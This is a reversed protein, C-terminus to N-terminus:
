KRASLVQGVKTGQYAVSIDIKPFKHTRKHEITIPEIHTERSFLWIGICYLAVGIASIISLVIAAVELFKYIDM